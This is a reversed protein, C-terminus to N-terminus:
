RQFVGEGVLAYSEEDVMVGLRVGYWQGPELPLPGVRAAYDPPNVGYTVGSAMKGTDGRIIWFTQRNDLSSVELYTAGCAPSWTIRPGARSDVQVNLPATCTVLPRPHAPAPTTAEGCAIVSLVSLGFVPRRM